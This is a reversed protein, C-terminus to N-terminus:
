FPTDGVAVIQTLGEEVIYHATMAISGVYADVEGIALAQLAEEASNTEYINIDPYNDKILKTISFSNVQAITKGALADLNGFAEEGQRAFIMYSINLYSETFTLFERREPTNNATSVMDAEKAHIQELSQTWNESGSWQFEVGLRDEFLKLYSGAMGSIKGDQDLFALPANNPDTAVKIIKNQNLWQTEEATLGIEYTTKPIELAIATTQWKEALKSFEQPSVADMGKELITKLIPWDDRVALRINDTEDETLFFDDSLIGIGTLLNQNLLYQSVPYIDAFVDIKGIAIDKLASVTDSYEYIDLEPYNNKYIEDTYDGTVSAIKLDKLDDLTRLRPSGKRGFFVMPMDLYPKTFELYESREPTLIISQAIDIEKNKLKLLIDEWKYGSVYEIKVNLKEAILNLYEISFGQAKGAQYFDLPAWDLENTATLTPHESLWKLEEDTLGINSDQAHSYLTTFVSLVILILTKFLSKM